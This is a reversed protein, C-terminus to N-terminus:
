EQPLHGCGSPNQLAETRRALVEEIDPAPVQDHFWTATGRSIDIETYRYDFVRDGDDIQLRFPVATDDLMQWDSFRVEIRPTEPFEFAMGDPYRRDDGTILHMTGGYPYGGSIGARNADGFPIESTQSVDVAFEEFHLLLAHFQHGLAFVKLPDAGLQAAGNQSVWAWNGEVAIVQDNDDVFRIAAQDVGGFFTEISFGTGDSVSVDAAARIVQGPCNDSARIPLACLVLVVVVAIRSDRM